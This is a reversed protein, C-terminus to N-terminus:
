FKDFSQDRLRAHPQYTRHSEERPTSALLLIERVIEKEIGSLNSLNALQDIEDQYQMPGDITANILLLYLKTARDTADHAVFNVLVKADEYRGASLFLEIEFLIQQSDSTRAM